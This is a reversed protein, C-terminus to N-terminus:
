FTFNVTFSAFQREYDASQAHDFRKIYTTVTKDLPSFFSKIQSMFEQNYNLNKHCIYSKSYGIAITMPLQIYCIEPEIEYPFQIVEL